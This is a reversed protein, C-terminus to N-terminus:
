VALGREACILALVRRFFIGGELFFTARELVKAAVGHVFVGLLLTLDGPTSRNRSIASSNSSDESTHTFRHLRSRMSSSRAIELACWFSLTGFVAHLCRLEGFTSITSSSQTSSASIGLFCDRRSNFFLNSGTAYIGQM